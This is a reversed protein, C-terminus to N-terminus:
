VTGAKKELIHQAVSCDIDVKHKWLRVKVVM